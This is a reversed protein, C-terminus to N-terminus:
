KSEDKLCRKFMGDAVPSGHTAVFGHESLLAHLMEHKLLARNRWMWQVVYIRRTRAMTYGDFVDDEDSGDAHIIHVRFHAAAVTRLQWHDLGAGRLKTCARLEAFATDAAPPWDASAIMALSEDVRESDPSWSGILPPTAWLILPERSDTIGQARLPSALVALLLLPAIRMIGM